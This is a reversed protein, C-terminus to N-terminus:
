VMSIFTYSQDQEAHATVITPEMKGRFFSFYLFFVGFIGLPIAALWLLYFSAYLQPALMLALAASPILYLLVDDLAMAEMNEKVEDMTQAPWACLKVSYRSVNWLLLLPVWVPSLALTTM